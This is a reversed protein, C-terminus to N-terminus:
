LDPSLQIMSHIKLNGVDVCRLWVMLALVAVVCMSTAVMLCIGLGSIIM